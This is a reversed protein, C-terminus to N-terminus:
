FARGGGRAGTVASALLKGIRRVMGQRYSATDAWSKGVFNRAKMGRVSRAFVIKGNSGQFRLFKSRTPVIPRGRPGHIGTGFLIWDTLQKPQGGKPSWRVELQMNASGRGKVQYNIGSAFTGTKRPANKQMTQMLLRGYGDFEGEVDRVVAKQNKNLRKGYAILATANMTVLSPM